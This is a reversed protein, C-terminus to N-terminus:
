HKNQPSIRVKRKDRGNISKIMKIANFLYAYKRMPASLRLAIEMILFVLCFRTNKALSPCNVNFSLM